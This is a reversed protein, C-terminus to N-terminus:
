SSYLTVDIKFTYFATQYIATTRTM